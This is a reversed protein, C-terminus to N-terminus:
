VSQLQRMVNEMSAEYQRGKSTLLRNVTDKLTSVYDKDYLRDLQIDLGMGEFIEDDMLEKIDEICGELQTAYVIRKRENEKNLEQARKLLAEQEELDYKVVPTTNDM